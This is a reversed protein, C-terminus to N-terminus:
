MRSEMKVLAEKLDSRSPPKYSSVFDPEDKWFRQYTRAVFEFVAELADVQSEVTKAPDNTCEYWRQSRTRQASGM